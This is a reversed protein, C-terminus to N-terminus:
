VRSEPCLKIILPVIFTDVQQIAAFSGQMQKTWSFAVLDVVLRQLVNFVSGLASESKM